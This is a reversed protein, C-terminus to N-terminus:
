RGQGSASGTCSSMNIIFVSESESEKRTGQKGPQEKLKDKLADRENGEELNRVTDWHVRDSDGDRKGRGKIEPYISTWSGDSCSL